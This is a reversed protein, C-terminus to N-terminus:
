QLVHRGAHEVASPLLLVAARPQHDECHWIAGATKSKVSDVIRNHYRSDLTRAHQAWMAHFVQELNRPPGPLHNTACWSAWAQRLQEWM